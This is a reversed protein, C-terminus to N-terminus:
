CSGTPHAQWALLHCSQLMHTLLRSAIFISRLLFPVSPLIFKKSQLPLYYENRKESCWYLSLGCNRLVTCQPANETQLLPFEVPTQNTCVRFRTSQAVTKGHNKFDRTSNCRLCYRRHCMFHSLGCIGAMTTVCGCQGLKELFCPHPM